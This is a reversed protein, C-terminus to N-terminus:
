SQMAKLMSCRKIAGAESGFMQTYHNFKDEGMMSLCEAKTMGLPAPPATTPAPATSNSEKVAVSKKKVPDKKALRGDEPYMYSDSYNTHEVTQMQHNSKPPKPLVPQPMPTPTPSPPQPPNLQYQPVSNSSTCGVFLLTAVATFLALKM